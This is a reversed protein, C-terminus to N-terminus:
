ALGPSRIASELRVKRIDTTLVYTFTVNSGKAKGIKGEGPRQGGALPWPHPLCRCSVEVVELEAV